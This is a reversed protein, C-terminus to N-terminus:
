AGTKKVFGMLNMQIQFIDRSTLNNLQGRVYFSEGSQLINDRRVDSGYIFTPVPEGSHERLECPTSHDSTMTIYCKEEDTNEVLYGLMSDIKEIIEVKKLPLNDHGSLDTAKVHVIVFDYGENILKLALKGKEEIATDYGGTFSDKIFYKFGVLKAIGGITIDGAICAANIKFKEAINPISKNMGAGRTLIVNAPHKGQSVRAQNYPHNKLIECSKKTFEWLNKATKKAAESNDLSYPEVLRSGECATGPDTGELEKSLNTNRLIVAVRHETLNVVFVKTGDDLTMNNIASALETTNENIRGARRDIVIENDDITAFNGRFAVDGKQIDFGASIAEIPGRGPYVTKSDCGFIELHGVDTGVTFGPAVPHVNGVMSKQLMFNMNPTNSYELPTKDGLSKIPRDGLGDAIVLIGQKKTM